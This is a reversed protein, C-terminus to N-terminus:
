KIKRRSKSKNTKTKKFEVKQKKKCTFKGRTFGRRNFITKSCIGISRPENKIKVGVQKICKCLKTAMIHEAHKKILIQTKPIPKNYFELIHKYDNITIQSM